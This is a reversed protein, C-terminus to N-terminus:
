GCPLGLLAVAHHGPGQRNRKRGIGAHDPDTRRDASICGRTFVMSRGCQGSAGRGSRRRCPRAAEEMSPQSELLIGGAPRPGQRGSDAPLPYRSLRSEEPVPPPLMLIGPVGYAAAELALIYATSERSRDKQMLYLAVPIELPLEWLLVASFSHKLYHLFMAPTYLDEQAVISSGSLEASLIDSYEKEIRIRKFNGPALMLLGYGIAAGALGCAMWGSDQGRGAMGSAPAAGQLTNASVFVPLPGGPKTGGRLALRQSLVAAASMALAMGGGTENSWGALLGSLAAVPRPLTFSDDHYHLGYPLLFASQLLGPWSYNAAGTTWLSTAVLHPAGFWYGATLMLAM